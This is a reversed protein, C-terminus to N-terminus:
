SLPTLVGLVVYRADEFEYSCTSLTLLLDELAPAIDATFDSSSIAKELYAEHEADTGFRLVYPWSDASTTFGAFVDVRYDGEPTLLYMAPHQDYYSQEAYELLCQFMTGNKMNHGYLMSNDDSFDAAGLYDMFVTGSSSSTGDLLRHLYYDNDEGQVVPYNIETDACYLWGIVDSNIEQLSTFDVTIPPEEPLEAGIGTTTTEDDATVDEPSEQEGSPKVFEQAASSYFSDAERYETFILYLQYASFAFVGLLVVLFAWRFLKRM